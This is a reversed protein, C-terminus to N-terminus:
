QRLSLFILFIYCHILFYLVFIVELDNLYFAAEEKDNFILLFPKDTQKFLQYIVFSLSSGVLGKLHTKSEIQAITNQLKQLQLSREFNQSILTKSM